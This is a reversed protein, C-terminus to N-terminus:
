KQERCGRGRIVAVKREEREGHEINLYFAQSRSDQQEETCFQAAAAAASCMVAMLTGM